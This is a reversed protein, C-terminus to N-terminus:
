ASIVFIEFCYLWRVLLRVLGSLASILSSSNYEGTFLSPRHKVPTKRLCCIHDASCCLLKLTSLLSPSTHRTTSASWLPLVAVIGTVTPFFSTVPSFMATQVSFLPSPHQEGHLLSLPAPSTSSSQCDHHPNAWGETSSNVCFHSFPSQDFHLRSSFTFNSWDQLHPSRDQSSFSCSSTLTTIILPQFLLHCVSSSFFTTRHLSPCPSSNM